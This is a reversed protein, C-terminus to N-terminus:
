SGPPLHRELHRARETSGDVSGRFTCSGIACSDMMSPAAAAMMIAIPMIPRIATIAGPRPRSPAVAAVASCRLLAAVADQELWGGSMAPELRRDVQEATREGPALRRDEPATTVTAAPTGRSHPAAAPFLRVTEPRARRVVREVPHLGRERPDRLPDLAFKILWDSMANTVGSFTTQIWDLAHNAPAAVSVTLSEPWVQQRLVERGIFVAAVTVVAGIIAAQRRTFSRGLLDITPKLRRDRLSWAYSVRDLVIAMAVIAIGANLAEGVDLTATRRARRAGSRPGGRDGRDRGHGDGDHHDPQRRAHDVAEGDPAAGQAPTQRRTSGFSGAVELATPPVGRIGLSTLRVAPPLAFILTSIIATAAGIGFLLVLPLLYAFAPVTQMADLLPRLFAEARDNRGTWIGLPIGILLAPGM